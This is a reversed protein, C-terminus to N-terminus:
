TTSRTMNQNMNISVPDKNRSQRRPLGNSRRWLEPNATHDGLNLTTSLPRAILHCYFTCNSPGITNYNNHVYRL